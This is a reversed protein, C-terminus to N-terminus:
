EGQSYKSLQNALDKYQLMALKVQWIYDNPDIQNTKLLYLSEDILERYMDVYLLLSELESDPM